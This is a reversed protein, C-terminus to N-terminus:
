NLMEPWSPKHAQAYLPASEVPTSLCILLAHLAEHTESNPKSTNLVQSCQRPLGNEYITLVASIIRQLSEKYANKSMSSIGWLAYHVM